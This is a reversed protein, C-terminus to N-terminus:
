YIYRYKFILVCLALIPNKLQCKKEEGGYVPISSVGNICQLMLREAKHGSVLM